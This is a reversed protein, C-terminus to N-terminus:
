EAVPKGEPSEILGVEPWIEPVGDLAPENVDVIVAVFAPPLPDPVSVLEMANAVCDANVM